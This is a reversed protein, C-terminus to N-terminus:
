KASKRSAGSGRRKTLMWVSVLVSAAMTLVSALLGTYFSWPEYRFRVTHRGRPVPLGRFAYYAPFIEATRGNMEAKWGPYYADSLVLYCDSTTNVDVTVSNAQREVVSAHGLGDTSKADGDRATDSGSEAAAVQLPDYSPDRMRRFLGAKDPVIQVDKVLFVRSAALDNRYV